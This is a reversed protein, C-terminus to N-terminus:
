FAVGFGFYVIEPFGIGTRFQFKNRQRRYGISGAPYIDRDITTFGGGTIEFYNNSNGVIYGTSVGLYLTEYGWTAYGGGKVKILFASHKRKMRERFLKEYAISADAWLGGYGLSFHFSHAYFPYNIKKISDKEIRNQIKEETLNHNSLIYYVGVNCGFYAKQNYGNLTHIHIAPDIQFKYKDNLLYEVGLSGTFDFNVDKKYYNEQLYKANFQRNFNIGIGPSFRINNKLNLLLRLEVPITWINRSVNGSKLESTLGMNDYVYATEYYNEERYLIGTTFRLPTNLDQQIKIGINFPTGGEIKSQSFWEYGSTYSNFYTGTEIGISFQKGQSFIKTQILVLTIILSFKLLSSNSLM